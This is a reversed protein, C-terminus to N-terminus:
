GESDAADAQPLFRAPVDIGRDQRLGHMRVEAVVVSEILVPSTSSNLVIAKQPVRGVAELQVGLAARKVRRVSQLLVDDVLKVVLVLAGDSPRCQDISAAILCTNAPVDPEMASDIVQYLSLDCSKFGPVRMELGQMQPSGLDSPESWKGSVIGASAIFFNEVFEEISIEPKSYDVHDVEDPQPGFMLYRPSVGLIKGYVEFLANPIGNAGNEQNRVASESLVKKRGSEQAALRGLEAASLGARKRAERL